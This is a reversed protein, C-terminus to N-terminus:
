HTVRGHSYLKRRSPDVRGFDTLLDDLLWSKWEPRVLVTHTDRELTEFGPIEIVARGM